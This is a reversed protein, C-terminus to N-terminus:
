ESVRECVEIDHCIIIIVFEAQDITIYEDDEQDDDDDDDDHRTSLSVVMYFIIVVLISSQSYSCDIHYTSSILTHITM